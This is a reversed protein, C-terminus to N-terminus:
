SGSGLIERLRLRLASIGLYEPHNIVVEEYYEVAAQANNERFQYHEGQWVLVVPRWPSSSFTNLFRGMEDKAEEYRGLALLLQIGRVSAEDAISKEDGQLNILQEVAESLKHQGILREANLYARLLADEVGGNGEIISLLELGDNFRPDGPLAAGSLNLLEKKLGPLDLTQILIKIRSVIIEPDDEDMGLNKVLEDLTQMARTTDGKVLWADVLRKGSALLLRRDSSSEMTTQFGRIAQDVDGTTTLRINAIRFNAELASRTRPLVSELSDYLSMTRELIDSKDRAFRIDLQLFPNGGFYSALSEFEARDSIQQEYVAALHLLANGRLRKDKSEASVILFLEAAHDWAQEAELDQAIGFIENIAVSPDLLRITAVCLDYARMHQYLKARALQITHNGAGMSIIHDFSTQIFAPAGDNQNLDILQNTVYSLTRPNKELHRLYELSARGYDHQISYIRALEMTFLSPDNLKQRADLLKSVALDTAGARLMANMVAIYIYHEGRSEILEDWVRNAAEEKDLLYYLRGKEAILNQDNPQQQLVDELIQMLTAANEKGPLLNAIQHYVNTRSPNRALVELYVQVAQEPKGLRVLSEARKLMIEDQSRPSPRRMGQGQLDTAGVMLLLATFIGITTITAKNM